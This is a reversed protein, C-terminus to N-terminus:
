PYSYLLSRDALTIVDGNKLKLKQGWEMAEQNVLLQGPNMSHNTLWVENENQVTIDCHKRSIMPLHIRIDCNSGRGIMIKEGTMPFISGDEIARNIITIKGYYRKRIEIDGYFAM